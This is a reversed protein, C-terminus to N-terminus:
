LACALGQRCLITWELIGVTGLSLFGSNMWYIYPVESLFDESIDTGKVLESSGPVAM